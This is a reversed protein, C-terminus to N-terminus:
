VRLLKARLEFLLDDMRSFAFCKNGLDKLSAGIHYLQIDDIILFRDHSTRNEIVQIDPYQLNHKELDKDLNANLRTHIICSVGKKRKNLLLLTTEDVYNDVIVLSKNAAKILDSAFVYADFLQGEFFIGKKPKNTTELATLIQELKTDTILQKLEIGEMRQVMGQLHGLSKRMSVFAKMIQVSVQVARATNLVASLMAVGQETFVTPMYKRHQGRRANQNLTGIQFRLASWEEETLQFAFDPPFRNTNRNVARNIYKTETEYLEALDSDLMVQLGRLTYIKNEIHQVAVEM